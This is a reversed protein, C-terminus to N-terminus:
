AAPLLRWGLATRVTEVVYDPSGMVDEWSFRLLMWGGVLLANAKRRDSRYDQRERHFEFGDAEVLLRQVRYGFDVLAILNGWADRVAFQTHSPPLGGLTLLVRLVSELVSGARPDALAAVRRVKAAGKGGASAAGSRLEAVDLGARLASDAIAVAQALPLRRACDLVTRLASTVLVGDIEHFESAALDRRSVRVGPACVQGRNRPVTISHVTPTHSIPWGHVLAASDGSVVGRMGRAAAVLDALGGVPGARYAGRAVRIVTGGAVARYLAASSVGAALLEPRSVVGCRDAGLAAVLEAIDM